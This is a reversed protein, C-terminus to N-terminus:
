KLITEKWCVQSDMVRSKKFDFYLSSNKNLLKLSEIWAEARNWFHKWRWIWLFIEAFRPMGCGCSFIIFNEDFWPLSRSSIKTLELCGVSCLFFEDHWPLNRCYNEEFWPTKDKQVFIWILASQLFNLDFSTLRRYSFFDEMQNSVYNRHLSTVYMCLLM